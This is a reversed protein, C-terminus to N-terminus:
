IKSYLQRQTLIGNMRIDHPELMLEEVLQAEFSAGIWQMRDGTIGADLQKAAFRDYYGGGYGMRGGKLDFALGPVFVVRPMREPNIEEAAQPDPEMIGYAGSKLQDWSELRYLTMSRDVANCRPVIVDLGKEWGWEILVTLDMESRFPVYAMFAEESAAELYAAAHRCAAKSWAERQEEGLGNRIRTMELRIAQKGNLEKHDM